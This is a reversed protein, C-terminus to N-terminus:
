FLPKESTKLPYLFLGTVNFPNVLIIQKLHHDATNQKKKLLLRECIKNLFPTALFKVINAPAPTKM